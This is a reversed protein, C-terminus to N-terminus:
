DLRNSKKFELFDKLAEEINTDWGEKLLHKISEFDKAYHFTGKGQQKWGKTENLRIYKWNLSFLNEIESILLNYSSAFTHNKKNIHVEKQFLINGTDLGEDMLHITVGSITNELNSWINPHKGRNYPLYSIHLNIAAQKVNDIIEKELINLYGFSVIFDYSNLKIFDSTIKNNSIDVKDGHSEIANKINEPYPSLLLVKLKKTNTILM